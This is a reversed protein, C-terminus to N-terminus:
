RWSTDLYEMIFESKPRDAQHTERRKTTMANDCSSSTGARQPNYLAGM